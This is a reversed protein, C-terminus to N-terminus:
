AKEQGVSELVQMKTSLTERVTADVLEKRLGFTM